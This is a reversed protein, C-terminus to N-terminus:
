SAPVPVIKQTVKAIKVVPVYKRVWVSRTALIQTRLRLLRKRANGRHEARRQGGSLMGQGANRSSAIHGKAAEEPSHVSPAPQQSCRGGRISTAAWGGGVEEEEEEQEVVAVAAVATPWRPKSAAAKSQRSGPHHIRKGAGRPEATPGRDSVASLLTFPSPWPLPTLRDSPASGALSDLPGM